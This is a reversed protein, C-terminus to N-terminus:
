STVAHTPDQVDNTNSCKMAKYLEYEEITMSDIDVESKRKSMALEYREYEEKTMNDIDVEKCNNHPISNFKTCPQPTQFCSKLPPLRRYEDEDNRSEKESEYRLYEKLTMNEIDPEMDMTVVGVDRLIIGKSSPSSTM